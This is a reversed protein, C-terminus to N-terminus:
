LEAYLQVLNIDGGTRYKGYADDFQGSDVFDEDEGDEYFRELLENPLVYWHGSEDQTVKVKYLLADM